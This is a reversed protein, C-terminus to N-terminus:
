PAMLSAMLSMWPLRQSILKPAVSSVVQAMPSCLAALTRLM